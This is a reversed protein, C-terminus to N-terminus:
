TIDNKSLPFDITFSTGSGIKSKVNIEGNHQKVIGYIVSLGLGTGKSVDKTTFFPDFIKDIIKNDIGEGNDEIILRVIQEYKESNESKNQVLQSKLNITGGDPMADRANIFLNMLIQEISHEDGFIQLVEESLDLNIHFEEGILRKILQMIDNIVMNIDLDHFEVEQKSSFILMKKTLAAARESADIMDDLLKNNELNETDIKYKLLESNGLIITLLNNFDHAIGASLNGISELKQSQFLQQQIKVKELETQRNLLTNAFIDKFIKLTVFDNLLIDQHYNIRVGMIGIVKDHFVFPLICYKREVVKMENEIKLDDLKSLYFFESIANSKIPWNIEEPLMSLIKNKSSFKEIKNYEFYSIYSKMDQAFIAMFMNQFNNIEGFESISKAIEDDIQHHPM